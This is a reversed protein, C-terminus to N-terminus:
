ASDPEAPFTPFCGNPTLFCTTVYKAGTVPVFTRKQSFNFFDYLSYNNPAASTDQVFFDAYPWQPPGITGLSNGNRGFAYEVFNLISGFDHCYFNPCVPNNRPGSIYGKKAYASIVLLPVRFGYVYNAGNGNGGRYGLKGPSMTTIPNVDDFFGGWDDWTVFIATSGWYNCQVPLPNGSNDYGGVANVIAAVWSPGGDEGFVGPHDSWNGDPMVWSVGQLQCSQAGTGNVGLDTLVQSANTVVKGNNFVDGECEGDPGFGSPQCLRDIANPATWLSGEDRAYYRWSVGGVALVDLLTRHQYCPFGPNAGPPDTPIFDKSTKGSPDVLTATTNWDSICGNHRDTDGNPLAANEEVFWKYYPKPYPSPASTGSFLFQHSPFSPGQNTQFMYNAFGYQEALHFYPDLIGNDNPIYTYQPCYAYNTNPCSPVGCGAKVGPPIDCAGDMKGNDYMPLWAANHGHNPDFCGDLQWPTMSIMTGHCSGSSVLHAGRNILTKDAFFLNGPTRNEQVIIIVHQIPTNPTPTQASALTAGCLVLSLFNLLRSLSKM